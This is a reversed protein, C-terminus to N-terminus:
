ADMPHMAGSQGAMGYRLGYAARAISCSATPIAMPKASSFSYRAARFSPGDEISYRWITRNGSDVHYLTKGDPTIAPGNTVVAEGGMKHLGNADLCYLAGTPQQEEDDM